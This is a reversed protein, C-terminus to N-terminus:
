YHLSCTFWHVIIDSHTHLLTSMCRGMRISTWMLSTKNSNRCRRLRSRPHVSFFVSWPQLVRWRCLQALSVPKPTSLELAQIHPPIQIRPEATSISSTSTMEFLLLSLSYCHIQHQVMFCHQWHLLCVQGTSIWINCPLTACLWKRGRLCQMTWTPRATLFFYLVSPYQMQIGHIIKSIASRVRYHHNGTIARLLLLSETVMTLYLFTGTPEQNQAIM